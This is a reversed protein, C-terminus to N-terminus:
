AQAAVRAAQEDDAARRRGRTRQAAGLPASRASAVCTESASSLAASVSSTWRRALSARKPESTWCELSRM